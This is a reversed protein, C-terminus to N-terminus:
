RQLGDMFFILCNKEIMDSIELMLSTYANIYDKISRTHEPESAEENGGDADEPYFQRKINAKLEEWTETRRLEKEIEGTGGGGDYSM